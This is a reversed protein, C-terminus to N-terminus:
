AGFKKAFGMYDVLTPMIEKGLLRGLGGNRFEKESFKAIKDERVCKDNSWILIPCPEGSHDGKEVPTTHDSVVCIITHEPSSEYLKKILRESADEIAKVKEQVKGDHAVEDIGEVHVLVFDFNENLLKLAFEAKAEYDTDIYGTAGPVEPAYMYKLRCLGKILGIGSVCAGDIGWKEKFNALSPTGGGGRIMIGNILPLGKEKRTKNVESKELVEHSKKTFENLLEAMNRGFIDKDSLPKAWIIRNKAQDENEINDEPGIVVDYSPDMDSVNSNIGIGRFHLVCRYSQSNRFLFKVLGPSLKVKENIEKEIVDLGDRPYGATRNLINFKDDITCYNCRFSIDGEKIDIGAGATEIPGRGTYVEFPDEGLIALHATDSGAILGRGLAHFVGTIGEAAMKDLTPTKAYELPTQNGLEGVQRDASGDLVVLICKRKVM